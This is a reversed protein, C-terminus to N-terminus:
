QIKKYHYRIYSSRCLCLCYKIFYISFRDTMGHNFFSEDFTHWQNKFRDLLPINPGVTTSNLVKKLFVERLIIEFIHHRCPLYLLDRGIKQEFLIAAGNTAGTNVATTDFCLGQVKEILQWMNLQDFVANSIEIGTGSILKPVAILQETDEQSVVIPLRDVKGYGTIEPLLKGDWHM